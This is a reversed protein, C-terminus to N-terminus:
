PLSEFGPGDMHVIEGSDFAFPGQVNLCFPVFDFIDLQFDELRGTKKFGEQTSPFKPFSGVDRRPNAPYARDGILHTGSFAM